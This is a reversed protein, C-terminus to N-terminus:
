WGEPDLGCRGAELTHGGGVVRGRPRPWGPVGREEREKQRQRRTEGETETEATAEAQRAQM